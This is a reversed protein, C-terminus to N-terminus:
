ARKLIYRTESPGFKVVLRCLLTFGRIPRLTPPSSRQIPDRPNSERSERRGRRREKKKTAQSLQQSSRSSRYIKQRLRRREEFDSSKLNVKKDRTQQRSLASPELINSRLFDLMFGLYTCSIILNQVNWRLNVCGPVM